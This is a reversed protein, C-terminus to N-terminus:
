VPECETLVFDTLRRFNCREAYTGFRGRYYCRGCIHFLYATFISKNM